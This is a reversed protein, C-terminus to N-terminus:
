AANERSQGYRTKAYLKLSKAVLDSLSIDEVKAMERAVNKIKPSIRVHIYDTKVKPRTNM